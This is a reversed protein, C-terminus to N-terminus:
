SSRSWTEYKISHFSEPIGYRSFVEVLIETITESKQNCMPYCELWRTFANEVLLYRSVPVELVDVQVLQM